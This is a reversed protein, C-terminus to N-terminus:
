FEEDMCFDALCEQVYPWTVTIDSNQIGGRLEGEKFIAVHPIKGVQLEINVNEDKSRKIMYLDIQKDQVKKFLAPKLRQCPECTSSYVLLLFTKQFQQLDKLHQFNGLKKLYSM